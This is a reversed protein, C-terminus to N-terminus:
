KLTMIKASILDGNEDLSAVAYSADGTRSRTKAASGPNILLIGDSNESLPLHTHGFICIDARNEKSEAVLQRYSGKANQLHGHTLFIRNRGIRLLQREPAPSAPSDCNGKVSYRETGGSIFDLDRAYDGAHIIISFDSHIDMIKKIPSSDGHTDSVILIKM